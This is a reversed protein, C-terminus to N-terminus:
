DGIMEAVKDYVDAACHYLIVTDSLSSETYGFVGSDYVFYGGLEARDGGNWKAEFYLYALHNMSEISDTIEAGARLDNLYDYLKWARDGTLGAAERGDVSAVCKFDSLDSRDVDIESGGDTRILVNGHQQCAALITIMLIATIMCLVRKMLM